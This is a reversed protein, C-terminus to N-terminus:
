AKINGIQDFHVTYKVTTYVLHNHMGTHGAPILTHIHKWKGNQLKIIDHLCSYKVLSVSSAILIGRAVSQDSEDQCRWIYIIM